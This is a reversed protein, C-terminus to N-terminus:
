PRYCSCQGPGHDVRSANGKANITGSGSAASESAYAAADHASREVALFCRHLINGDVSSKARRTANYTSSSTLRYNSDPM